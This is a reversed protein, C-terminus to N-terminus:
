RSADEQIHVNERPESQSLLIRGSVDNRKTEKKDVAVHRKGDKQKWCPQLCPDFDRGHHSNERSRHKGSTQSKNKVSKSNHLNALLSGADGKYTLTGISNILSNKIKLVKNYKTNKSRKSFRAKENRAHLRVRARAM